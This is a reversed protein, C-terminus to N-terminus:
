SAHLPWVWTVFIWHLHQIGERLGVGERSFNRHNKENLKFPFFPFLFIKWKLFERTSNWPKTGCERPGLFHSQTGINLIRLRQYFHIKISNLAWVLELKSGVGFRKYNWDTKASCKWPPLIRLPNRELTWKPEFWLLSFMRNEHIKSVLTLIWPFHPFCLSSLVPSITSAMLHLFCISDTFVNEWM